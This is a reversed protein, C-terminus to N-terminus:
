LDKWNKMRKVKRNHMTAGDHTSRIGSAECAITRESTSVSAAPCAPSSQQIRKPHFVSSRTGGLAIRGHGSHRSRLVKESPKIEPAAFNNVVSQPSNKRARRAPPHIVKSVTDSSLSSKKLHFQM